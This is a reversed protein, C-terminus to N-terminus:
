QKAIWENVRNELIKLPVAGSELVRDHFARVDFREGLKVEARQRLERIKIQGIKCALAQGPGPLTAISRTLSTRGRKPANEM